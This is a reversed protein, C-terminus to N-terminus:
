DIFYARQYVSRARQAHLARGPPWPNGHQRGHTNSPATAATFAYSSAGAEKAQYTPLSSREAAKRADRTDIGSSYAAITSTEISNLAVM